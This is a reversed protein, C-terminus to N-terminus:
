QVYKFDFAILLRLIENWWDTEIQSVKNVPECKWKYEGYEM